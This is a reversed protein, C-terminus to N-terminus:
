STSQVWEAVFPQSLSPSFRARDRFSGTRCAGSPEVLSLDRSALPFLEPNKKQRNVSEPLPPLVPHPALKLILVGHHWPRDPTVFRFPRQLVWSPLSAASSDDGACCLRRLTTRVPWKPLVVVGLRQLCTREM